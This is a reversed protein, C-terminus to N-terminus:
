SKSTHLKFDIAKNSISIDKVLSSFLDEENKTKEDIFGTTKAANSGWNYSSTAPLKSDAPPKAPKAQASNSGTDFSNTWDASWDNSKVPTTTQFTTKTAATPPASQFPEFPEMPDDDLDKWENDDFENWGDGGSTITTGGFALKDEEKQLSTLSKDENLKAKSM